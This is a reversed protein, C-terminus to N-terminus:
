RNRWTTILNNKLAMDSDLMSLLGKQFDQAQAYEKEEELWKWQRRNEKLALENQINAWERAAAADEKEKKEQKQSGYIYLGLDIVAGVATGLGPVIGSGIASFTGVPPVTSTSKTAGPGYSWGTASAGSTLSGSKGAQIIQSASNVM